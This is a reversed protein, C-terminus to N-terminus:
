GGSNFRDKENISHDTTSEKIISPQVRSKNMTSKNENKDITSVKNRQQSLPIREFKNLGKGIPADIFIGDAQFSSLLPIKEALM